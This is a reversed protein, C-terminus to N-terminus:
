ESDTVDYMLDFAEFDLDHCYYIEKQVHVFESKVGPYLGGYLEGFVRVLKLNPVLLKVSNFIERIKKGHKEVVM